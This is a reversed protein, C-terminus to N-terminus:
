RAFVELALEADWTDRDNAILRAMAELETRIRTSRPKALSHLEAHVLMRIDAGHLQRYGWKCNACLDLDKAPADVFTKNARQKAGCIARQRVTRWPLEPRWIHVKL